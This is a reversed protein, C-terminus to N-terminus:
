QRRSDQIAAEHYWAGFSSATAHGADAAAPQQRNAEVGRRGGKPFQIIQASAQETQLTDTTMARSAIPKHQVRSLGNWRFQVRKARRAGAFLLLHWSADRQAAEPDGNLYAHSVADGARHPAIWLRAGGVVCGSAQKKLTARWQAPIPM